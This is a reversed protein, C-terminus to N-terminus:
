AFAAGWIGGRGPLSIRAAMQSLLARGPFSFISGWLQDLWVPVVPAEARRAIIEYGRRLGGLTGSRTLEGEPFVCVIEGARIQDAAVRMADKARRPTIPISGTIRLVAHLFRNRYFEESIMFRIPRPCALLLIIADVWTIHNPLLLFGGRPLRERGVVDVRYILGVIPLAFLRLVREAASIPPM